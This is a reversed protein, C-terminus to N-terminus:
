GSRTARRWRGSEETTTSEGKELTEILEDAVKIIEYDNSPLRDRPLIKFFEQQLRRCEKLRERLLTEVIKWRNGHIEKEIKRITNRTEGTFFELEIAQDVWLPLRGRRRPWIKVLDTAALHLYSTDTEIIGLLKKVLGYKQRDIGRHLAVGLDAILRDQIDIIKRTQVIAEDNWVKSM